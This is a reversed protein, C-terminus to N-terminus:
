APQGTLGLSRGTEVEGTSPSCAHAVMDLDEEVGVGGGGVM